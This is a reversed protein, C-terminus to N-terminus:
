RPAGGAAADDSTSRAFPVGVEVVEVFDGAVPELLLSAVADFVPRLSPVNLPAPEVLGYPVTWTEILTWPPFIV